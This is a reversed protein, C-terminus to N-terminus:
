IIDKQKKIWFYFYNKFNYTDLVYTKFITNIQFKFDKFNYTDLVYMKFITNIM